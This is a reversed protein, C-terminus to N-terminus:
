LSRMQRLLPTPTPARSELVALYVSTLDLTLTWTLLTGLDSGEFTLETVPVKLKKLIEKLKALKREVEEEGRQMRLVVVARNRAAVWTEVENHLLEPYAEVQVPVKANENISAKFHHAVSGVRPSTYVAVSKGLLTKALKKARNREFGVTPSVQSLTKEVDGVVKALGSEGSVIGMTTLIRAAVLVMGPISVRPVLLNEVRNFPIGMANSVLEIAGGSSISVTSCRREAAERLLACAEKTEGSLSVIIALTKPGPSNPLHYDKAVTVPLKVRPQLWDSVIDCASGSGGMGGLVVSDFERREPVVLRQSLSRSMSEPWKTYAEWLGEKDVARIERLSLV